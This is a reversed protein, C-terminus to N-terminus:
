TDTNRPYAKLLRELELLIDQIRQSTLPEGDLLFDVIAERLNSESTAFELTPRNELGRQVQLTILIARNPTVPRNAEPEITRRSFKLNDATRPELLSRNTPEFDQTSM